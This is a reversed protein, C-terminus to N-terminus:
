EWRAYLKLDQNIEKSFDYEEGDATVWCDFVRNQGSTDDIRWNKATEGDNVKETKVIEGDSFYTVSHSECSKALLVVGFAVILVCVVAVAAYIREKTIRSIKM